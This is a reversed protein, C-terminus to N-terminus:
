NDIYRPENQVSKDEIIDLLLDSSGLLLIYNKGGRVVSVIKRKSDLITTEKLTIEGNKYFFFTVFRRLLISIIWIAGLVILLSLFVTTM